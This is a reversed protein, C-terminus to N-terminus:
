EVLLVVRQLNFSYYPGDCLSTYQKGNSAWTTHWNDGQGSKSSTGELRQIGTIATIEARNVM